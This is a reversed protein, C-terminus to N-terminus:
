IYDITLHVSETTNATTDRILAEPHFITSAGAKIPWGGHEKNLVATVTTGGEAAAEAEMVGLAVAVIATVEEAMDATNRGAM